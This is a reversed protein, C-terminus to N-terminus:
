RTRTAAQEGRGAAANVAMSLCAVRLGLERVLAVEPMATMGIYAVGDGELRDVEAKTELRPGQTAGYVGGDHCAVGAVRASRLLRRRLDPCFPDTLEIHDLPKFQGDLFTHERGWTYDILQDPIAVEGPKPETPIVGVTNLSIVDTVGVSQLALANARYNILHPPIDHAAGHRPLVFVHHGAISVRRLPASPAGLPTDAAISEADHGLRTMGSGVILGFVSAGAM